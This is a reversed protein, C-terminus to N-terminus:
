PTFAVVWLRPAYQMHSVHPLEDPLAQVTCIMPGAVDGRTGDTVKHVTSLYTVHQM